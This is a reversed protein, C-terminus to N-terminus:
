YMMGYPNFGGGYGGYGGMGGGYGGYGGYQQQGGGGGGAGGGGDGNGGDGGNGTTEDTPNFTQQQYNMLNYLDTQPFQNMQWNQNMSGLGQSYQYPNSGFMQNGFRGTLGGGYPSPRPPMGGGMGGGYMGGMGGGYMGGMGGGYGGMGGGYMGGMGGGYMGGLGGRYPMPQQMGGRYNQWTTGQNYMPYNPEEPIGTHPPTDGTYQGPSKNHSLAPVPNEETGGRLMYTQAKDVSIHIVPGDSFPKVESVILDGVADGEKLDEVDVFGKDKVFYPHSPSTVISDGETFLVERRPSDEITKAFTVKQPDKSTIVEDGVKLEGALIWDNNALQIHEEPSPCSSVAGAPMGGSPTPQEQEPVRRAGGMGGGYMGGMGGGYMGGGYMGGMGGLGFQGPYYM